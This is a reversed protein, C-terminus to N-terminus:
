IMEAAGLASNTLLFFPILNRNQFTSCSVRIHMHETQNTQTTLCPGWQTGPHGSSETYGWSTNREAQKLRGPALTASTLWWEWSRTFRRLDTPSQVIFFFAPTVWTGPLPHNTTSSSTFSPHGHRACQFLWPAWDACPLSAWWNRQLLPKGDEQRKSGKEMNGWTLTDGLWLINHSSWLQLNAAM